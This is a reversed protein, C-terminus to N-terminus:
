EFWRIPSEILYHTPLNKVSYIIHRGILSQGSIGIQILLLLFFFFFPILIIFLLITSHIDAPRSIVGFPLVTPLKKM